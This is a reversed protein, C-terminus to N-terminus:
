QEELQFRFVIHGSMGGSSKQFVWQKAAEMSAPKFLANGELFDMGSVTGDGSVQLGLVVKGQVRKRKALPPYVPAVRKVAKEELNPGPNSIQMAATGNLFLLALLIIIGIKRM